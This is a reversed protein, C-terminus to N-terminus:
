KDLEMFSYEGVFAGETNLSNYEGSMKIIDEKSFKDLKIVPRDYTKKIM